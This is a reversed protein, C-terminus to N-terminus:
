RVRFTGANTLTKGGFQFSCLVRYTGVPLRGAYEAIFKGREGPLLRRPEFPIKAALAGRSDVIAAVGGPVVPESGTNGLTQVITLNRTSTAPHIVVAEPTAAVDGSLVFTFLSGLSALLGVTGLTAVGTAARFYVVIARVTTTRPITIRVLVSQTGMPPITGSRLSFIASAAISDPLEGARVFVRRGHKVVVDEASMEFALPQGTGNHFDVDQTLSQGYTGAAEVVAPMLSVGALGTTLQQSSAGTPLFGAGVCLALTANTLRRVIKMTKKRRM